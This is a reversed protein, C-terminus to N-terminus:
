SYNSPGININMVCWQKKVSDFAVTKLVYFTDTAKCIGTFEHGKELVMMVHSKKSDWLNSFQTLWTVHNCILFCIILEKGCIIFKM